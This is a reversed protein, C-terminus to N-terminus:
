TEQAPQDATDTSRLAAKWMRRITSGFGRPESEAELRDATNSTGAKPTRDISEQSGPLDSDHLKTLQDVRDELRRVALRQHRLDVCTALITQNWALATVTACPAIAILWWALRDDLHTGLILVGGLVPLVLAAAFYAGLFFNAWVRDAPRRSQRRAALGHICYLTGVAALVSLALGAFATHPRQPVFKSIAIVVVSTTILVVAVCTAGVSLGQLRGERMLWRIPASQSNTVKSLQRGDENAAALLNGAEKLRSELERGRPALTAALWACLFALAMGALVNPMSWGLTGPIVAMLALAVGVYAVLGFVPRSSRQHADDLASTHQGPTPTNFVSVLLASVVIGSVSTLMISTDWEDRRRRVWPVFDGVDAAAGNRGVPSMFIVLLLLTVIVAIGLVAAFASNRVFRQEEAVM